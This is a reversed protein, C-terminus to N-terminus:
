YYTVIRAKRKMCGAISVFAPLVFDLLHVNTYLQSCACLCYLTILWNCFLVVAVVVDGISEIEVGYIDFLLYLFNHHFSNFLIIDCCTCIIAFDLM